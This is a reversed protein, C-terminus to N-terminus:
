WPKGTVSQNCSACWLRTGDKRWIISASGCKECDLHITHTVQGDAVYVDEGMFAAAAGILHVGTKLEEPINNDLWMKWETKWSNWEEWEEDNEPEHFNYVVGYWKVAIASWSEITVVETVSISPLRPAFSVHIKIGDMSSEGEETDKEEEDDEDDETMHYDDYNELSELIEGSCMGRFQGRADLDAFVDLVLQIALEASCDVVEVEDKFLYVNESGAGVGLPICCFVERDVKFRDPMDKWFSDSGSRCWGLVRFTKVDYDPHTVVINNTYNKARNLVSNLLGNDM